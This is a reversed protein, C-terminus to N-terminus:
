RSLGMRTAIATGVRVGLSMRAGRARVAHWSLPRTDSVYFAHAIRADDEFAGNAHLFHGPEGDLTRVVYVRWGPVGSDTHWGVGGGAPTRIM